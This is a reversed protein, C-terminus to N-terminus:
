EAAKEPALLVQHYALCRRVSRTVARSSLTAGTVGHIDRNLRLRPTLKQGEFQRFWGPRPVYEEPEHFALVRVSRVSGDPELVVLLGQTLTRVVHVDIFAWGLRVGGKWGEHVGVIRSEVPARALKEIQAVHEASLLFNRKEVRDAGPFALELAEAQSLYVVAGAGGPVLLPAGLLLAWGLAACIRARMARDSCSVSDWASRM